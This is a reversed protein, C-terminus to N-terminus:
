TSREARDIGIEGLAVIEDEIGEEEVAHRQIVAQQLPVANVGVGFAHRHDDLINQRLDLLQQRLHFGLLLSPQGIAPSLM